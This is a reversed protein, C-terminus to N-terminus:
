EVGRSIDLLGEFYSAVLEPDFEYQGIIDMFMEPETAVASLLLQCASVNENVEAESRM